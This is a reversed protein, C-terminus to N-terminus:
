GIDYKYSRNSLIQVPIDNTEPCSVMKAQLNLNQMLGQMAKGSYYSLFRHNELLETIKIKVM